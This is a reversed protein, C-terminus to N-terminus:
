SVFSEYVLLFSIVWRFIFRLILTSLKLLPFGRGTLLTLTLGHATLSSSLFNLPEIGWGVDWFHKFRAGVGTGALTCGAPFLPTRVWQPCPHSGYLDRVPCAPM